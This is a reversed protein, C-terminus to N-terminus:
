PLNDPATKDIKILTKAWVLAPHDSVTGKVDVKGSNVIEANKTLIWDVQHQVARAFRGLFWPGPKGDNRDGAVFVAFGKSACKRAYRLLRTNIALRKAESADRRTPVHVGFVVFSAGTNRDEFLVVPMYINRGQLRFTFTKRDLVKYLDHRYAIANMAPRQGPRNNNPGKIVRWRTHADWGADLTPGYEQMAIVGVNNKNLIRVLTDVRERPGHKIEDFHGQPTNCSAIVVSTRM